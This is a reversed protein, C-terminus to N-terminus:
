LNNRRICLKKTVRHGSRAFGTDYRRGCSPTSVWFFLVLSTQIGLNVCSHRLDVSRAPNRELVTSVTASISPAPVSLPAPTIQIAVPLAACALVQAALGQAAAFGQAADQSAALGQAALGQSTLGQAAFAQAAFGQAAFGQAAFGQAASGQAALGQAALGQAAL